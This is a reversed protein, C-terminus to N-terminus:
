GNALDPGAPRLYRGTPWVRARHLLRGRLTPRTIFVDCGIREEAGFRRKDDNYEGLYDFTSVGEDICSSIAALRAAAGAGPIYDPDFGGQLSVFTGKYVYGIELARLGTDDEIGILRLWGRDLAVPALSTYFRAETPKRRFAGPDGKRQWRKAHLEFL